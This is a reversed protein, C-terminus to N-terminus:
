IAKKLHDINFDHSPPMNVSFAVGVATMNPLVQHVYIAVTQPSPAESCYKSRARCTWIAWGYTTACALVLVCAVIAYKVHPLDRSTKSYFVNAVVGLLIGLVVVTLVFTALDQAFPDSVQLIAFWVIVAAGILFLGWVLGAVYPLRLLRALHEREDGQVRFITSVALFLVIVVVAVGGVVLPVYLSM